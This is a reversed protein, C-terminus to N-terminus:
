SVFETTSVRSSTIRCIQPLEAISGIFREARSLFAEGIDAYDSRAALGLYIALRERFELSDAIGAYTIRPSESITPSLGLHDLLEGSIGGFPDHKYGNAILRLAQLSKWEPRNTLDLCRTLDQWGNTPRDRVAAKIRQVNAEYDAHSIVDRGPAIRAGLLVLEREIQHYVAVLVVLCIENVFPEDVLLWDEAYGPSQSANEARRDREQRALALMRRALDTNM